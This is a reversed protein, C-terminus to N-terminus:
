PADPPQPATDSPPNPTTPPAPNGNPEVPILVAALKKQIDEATVQPQGIDPIVKHYAAATERFQTAIQEAQERDEPALMQTLDVYWRGDKRVMDLPEKENPVTATARDGEQEVHLQSVDYDEFPGFPDGEEGHFLKLAEEGYAAKIKRHFEALAGAFEVIAEAVPRSTESTQAISLFEQKNGTKLAEIFTQFAAQPTEAGNGGGSTGKEGGCGALMGLALLIAWAGARRVRRM